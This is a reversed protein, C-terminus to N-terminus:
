LSSNPGNLPNTCCNSTLLGLHFGKGNLNPAVLNQVPPVITGRELEYCERLALGPSSLLDVLPANLGSWFSKRGSRVVVAAIVKLGHRCALSPLRAVAFIGAWWDVRKDILWDSALEPAAYLVIM